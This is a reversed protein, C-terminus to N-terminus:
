TRELWHNTFLHYQMIGYFITLKKIISCIFRNCLWRIHRIFVSCFHGVSLFFTARTIKVNHHAWSQKIIQLKSIAHKFIILIIDFNGSSLSIVKRENRNFDFYLYVKKIDHAVFIYDIPIMCMEQSSIFISYRSFSHLIHLQCSFASM